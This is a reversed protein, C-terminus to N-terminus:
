REHCLPTLKVKKTITAGPRKKNLLYQLNVDQLSNHQVEFFLNGENGWHSYKVWYLATDTPRAGMDVTGPYDKITDPDYM